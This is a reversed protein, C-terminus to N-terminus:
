HHEQGFKFLNAKAQEYVVEGNYFVKAFNYVKDDRKELMTLIIIKNNSVKKIAEIAISAFEYSAVFNDYDYGTLCVEPAVIISNENANEILELLTKLNTNYDSTTGFLLSNLTYNKM